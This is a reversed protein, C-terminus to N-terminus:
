AGPPHWCAMAPRTWCCSTAPGNLKTILGNYLAMGFAATVFNLCIIWLIIPQRRGYDIGRRITLLLPEHRASTSRGRYHLMWLAVLVGVNGITSLLYAGGSGLGAIVYGALVPTVAFSGMQAATTLAVANPIHQQPVLEPLLAQRVPADLSATASGVFILMFVLWLQVAGSIVLLGISM